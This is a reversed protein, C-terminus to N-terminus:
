QFDGPFRRGFLGTVAPFATQTRFAFSDNDNIRIAIYGAEDSRAHAIARRNRVLPEHIRM